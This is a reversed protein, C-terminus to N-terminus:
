LKVRQGSCLIRLWNGEPAIPHEVFELGCSTCIADGAARSWEHDRIDMIRSIQGAMMRAMIQFGRRRKAEQKEEIM